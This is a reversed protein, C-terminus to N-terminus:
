ATDGNHATDVVHTVAIYGTHGVVTSDVPLTKDNYDEAAGITINTNGEGTPM